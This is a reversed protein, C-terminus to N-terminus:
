KIAEGADVFWHVLELEYDIETIYEIDDIYWRRMGDRYVVAPGDLRHKKGNVLWVADGNFEFAPGEHRHYCGDKYWCVSGDHHRIECGDKIKSGNIVM